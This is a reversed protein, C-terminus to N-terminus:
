FHTGEKSAAGGSVLAAEDTAEEVMYRSLELDLQEQKSSCSSETDDSSGVIDKLLEILARRKVEKLSTAGLYHFISSIFDLCHRAKSPFDCEKQSEESLFKLGKFRPDLFCVKTLLQLTDSTYRAGLDDSMVKKMSKALESDGAAPIFHNDQM